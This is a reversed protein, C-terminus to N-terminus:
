YEKNLLKNYAKPMNFKVYCYAIIINSILLSVQVIIIPYDRKLMGYTFWLISAVLQILITYPSLSEVDQTVVTKYALPWLIFSALAAGTYGITDVYNNKIYEM